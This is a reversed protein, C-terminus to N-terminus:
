TAIHAEMTSSRRGFWSWACALITSVLTSDFNTSTAVDVTAVYAELEALRATGREVFVAAFRKESLIVTGPHIRVAEYGAGAVEDAMVRYGYESHFYGQTDFGGQQKPGCASTWLWIGFCYTALTRTTVM